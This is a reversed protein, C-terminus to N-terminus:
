IEKKIVPSMSSCEVIQTMDRLGHDAIMWLNFNSCETSMILYRVIYYTIHLMLCISVTQYKEGFRDDTM